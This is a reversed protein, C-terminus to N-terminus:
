RPRGAAPPDSRQRRVGDKEARYSFLSMEVSARITASLLVAASANSSGSAAASVSADNPGSGVQNPPRCRGAPHVTNALYKRGPAPTPHGGAARRIFQSERPRVQDGAASREQRAGIPVSTSNYSRSSNESRMRSYPWITTTTSSAEPRNANRSEDLNRAMM